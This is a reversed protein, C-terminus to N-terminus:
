KITRVIRFGFHKDAVDPDCINQSNLEGFKNISNDFWSGGRMHRAFYNKYSYSDWCWERVNGCMDYLGYGNPKKQAVPHTKEGSNAYYWAVEDLNNSGAYRYDEGGKAAYEWEETTPLRFGNKSMDQTTNDWNFVYVPSLDLMRSLNNCFKVADYWSVFEVPLNYGKFYSYNTGGGWEFLKQKVETQLMEINTGPIPIMKLGYYEYMDKKSAEAGANKLIELIEKNQPEQVLAIIYATEDYKSKIKYDAGVSLLIKVIEINGKICALMLCTRGDNNQVNIDAKAKILINIINLDPNDSNCAMMLPTIREINKSNVDAGNNIIEECIKPNKNYLSKFLAANRAEGDINKCKLLEKIIKENTNKEAAVMLGEADAIKHKVYYKVDKLDDPHACAKLYDLDPKRECSIILLSLLIFLLFNKM